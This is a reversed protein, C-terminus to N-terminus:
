PHGVLALSDAVAGIESLVPVPQGDLTRFAALLSVIRAQTAIPLPAFGTGEVAKDGLLFSRYFFNLTRGAQQVSAPARQVIVYTATVIPWAGVGDIDLLPKAELTGRFLEGALIAARYSDVRAEVWEGRRNRLRVSALDERALYDSSIYGIAGSTAKVAQALKSSGEVAIVTGPWKARGGQPEITEAALVAVQKLYSVFVETTGSGDARVVRTIRLNPLALGPNLAVIVPDNWRALKGSFISALADSNLRLSAPAVGPINVVPVVGGVLTPFQFLQYKQLDAASMPVDSAGFDVAKAVIQKVGVSSGSPVYNVKTGTDKAYREAWQQYVKAPFTAGTGSVLSEAEAVATTALILCALM